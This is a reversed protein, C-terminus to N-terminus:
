FEFQEVGKISYSTVKLVFLKRSNYTRIATHKNHESIIHVFKFKRDNATYQVWWMLKDYDFELNKYMRQHDKSILMLNVQKSEKTTPWINVTYNDHSYNDVLDENTKQADVIWEFCICICPEKNEPLKTILRPM